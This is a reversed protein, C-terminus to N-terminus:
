IIIMKLRYMEAKMRYVNMEYMWQQRQLNMKKNHAEMLKNTDYYHYIGLAGQALTKITDLYTRDM